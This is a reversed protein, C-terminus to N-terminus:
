CGDGLLVLQQLHNALAAKRNAFAANELARPHLICDLHSVSFAVEEDEVEEYCMMLLDNVLLLSVTRFFNVNQETVTAVGVDDRQLVHKLSLLLHQKNEVVHSAALQEVLNQTLRDIKWVCM